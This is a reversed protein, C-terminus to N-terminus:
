LVFTRHRVSGRAMTFVEVADIVLAGPLAALRRVPDAAVPDVRLRHHLWPAVLLLAPRWRVALAVGLLAALTPPHSPKWFVRRHLLRRRVWPRGHVVLPIDAWRLAEQAAALAGRVRVDHHVLATPCFVAERGLGGVRIGLDTDEGGPRRYREDFGGVRELDARRYFVNCTEMFRTSSVELVAAFPEGGLAQQEPPPSTRGVVLGAGSRIADLGAQLWGPDPVCDDDTFAVVPARAARWGLNRGVAPGGRSPAHIVRLELPSHHALQDLVAGTDDTSADDVAVVEFRGRGLTQRELAGVLRSMRRARNRTAVVVSIEPGDQAPGDSGEVPDGADVAPPEELGVLSRLLLRYRAAEDLRGARRAAALRSALGAASVARYAGARAPGRSARLFLDLNAAELAARKAGFRSAGSANGVHRVVAGPEFLISWGRQRARWCWELDEVYMFFREDFGGLELLAERRILLAAGVAWDVTRRRDQRWAGELCLEELWRRPLWSRGYAADLLAVRITPFPHTSHEVSGDPRLLLPAAAAVTPDAEASAVLAGIAGPEPWADSNLALFWPADSRAILRNVARAFGLNERGAEIELDPFAEELAQPTGDSSANDHILVRLEAGQDSDLLHRVAGVTLRATNWTVIGVDVRPRREDPRPRAEDPM